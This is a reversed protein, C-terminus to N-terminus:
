FYIEHSVEVISRIGKESYKKSLPTGRLFL